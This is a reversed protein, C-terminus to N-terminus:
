KARCWTIDTGCCVKDGRRPAEPLFNDVSATGSGASGTSVKGSGSGLGSLPYNDYLPDVAAAGIALGLTTFVIMLALSVVTGVFIAGWSVRRVATATAASPTPSAPYTRM